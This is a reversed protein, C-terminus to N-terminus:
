LQFYKSSAEPMFCPREPPDATFFRDSLCSVHTGNRPRSLKWSFSVAVWELRRAQSIGRVSSGVVTVPDCFQQVHSLVYVVACSAYVSLVSLAVM